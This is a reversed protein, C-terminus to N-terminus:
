EGIEEINEGTEERGERRKKEEKRLRMRQDNCEVDLLKFLLFFWVFTKILIFSPCM